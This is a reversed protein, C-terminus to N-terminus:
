LESYFRLKTQTKAFLVIRWKGTKKVIVNGFSVARAFLANTPIVTKLVLWPCAEM